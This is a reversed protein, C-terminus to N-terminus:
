KAGKDRVCSRRRRSLLGGVIGILTAGGPEPVPAIEGGGSLAYSQDQLYGNSPNAPDYYINAGNGAISSVQNLGGDLQLTEVYIASDASTPQLSLSGGSELELIGVAFNNVYGEATPGEDVGVVRFNHFSSGELDILSSGTNWVRNQTSSNDFNGSVFFRDGVGGVLAGTTSITLDTFYNDAPDSSYIGNNTFTSVFSVNGGTIKFTAGANNTVPSNFVASAYKVDVRAGSDNTVGGNVTATGGTLELETNNTLGGTRLIGYGSINGSNTLSTNNTDITGGTLSILGANTGLGQTFIVENGTTATILGSAANSVTGNMLLAGGSPEITGNNTVATNVNGFGRIASNNTIAGGTLNATISGLAINGNNTFAPVSLTGGTLAVTGSNTLPVNITGFGSIVGATTNTLTAAGNITSGNLTMNGGNSLGGGTLNLQNASLTINAANTNPGSNSLTLNGGSQTIQGANNFGGTGSIVGYGNIQSNNVLLGTGGLTGGNLTIQGNNTLTSGSLLTMPGNLTISQGLAFSSGITAGNTFDLTGGTWNMQAPGGSLVLSQVNLTGGSLSIASGPTNYVLLTNSVSMTGGSIVLNGMGGAGASYGGVYANGNVNFVGTGSLNYVGNGGAVSGIFLAAATNIGASQNMTGTGAAAGIAEDVAASMSGTGTLSYVGVAGAGSGVSIYGSSTNTGGTQNFTAVGGYGILEGFASDTLSLLGGSLNYTASSGTNDAMYLPASSITHTGGTQVFSGTGNFGIIDSNATETLSGASLSYYGTAGSAVGVDLGSFNAVGGSQIFSGIAGPLNGSPSALGLEVIPNTITGSSLQYIGVGGASYGLFLVRVTNAGGSQTFSGTGSYGIVEFGTSQMSGGSLQYTGNSGADYGLDFNGTCANTGGSQVFNGTGNVGIYQASNSTLSGSSSLSYNGTASSAAGLVLVQFNAIGGSQVFSGSGSNGIVAENFLTVTGASLSYMGSGTSQDGVYLSNAISYSGGTQAFTGAGSYGVSAQPTNLAGGSLAYSGTAGLSYGLYLQTSSTHTGGSQVFSGNGGYGIYEAGAASLVGTGSLSYAGNSGGLGGITFTGSVSNTGGSQVVSGGPNGSAGTSSSAITEAAVSLLGGSLNYTGAGNSQDGVNLFGTANLTGGTQNVVGTGHYGVSMQPANLIATGSLAYTGSDGADSGVFLWSNSNHTGGTQNFTGTGFFGVREYGGVTLSGASLSYLGVRTGGDNAGISLLGTVSASGGTQTLIGNGTNGVDANAAILSGGSLLYNGQGTSSNGIFLTGTLTNTAITQNFTGIGFNGIAENTAFLSDGATGQNLVVGFSSGGDVTLSSIATLATYNSDFTVSFLSTPAETINVTDGTGPILNNNWHAATNWDQGSTGTFNDTNAAFVVLPTAAAISASLLAACRQRAKRQRTASTM